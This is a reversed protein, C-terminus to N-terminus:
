DTIKTRVGKEVSVTSGQSQGMIGYTYCDINGYGLKWFKFDVSVFTFLDIATTKRGHLSQHQVEKLTM